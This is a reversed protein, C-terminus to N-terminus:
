SSWDCPRAPDEPERRFQTDCTRCWDAVYTGTVAHIPMLELHNCRGKVFTTGPMEGLAPADIWEWRPDLEVTM